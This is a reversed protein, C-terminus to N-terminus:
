HELELTESRITFTTIVDEICIRVVVTIVQQANFLFWPLPM